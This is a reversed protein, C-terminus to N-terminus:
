VNFRSLVGSMLQELSGHLDGTDAMEEETRRNQDSLRRFLRDVARYVWYDLLITVVIFTLTIALGLWPDFAALMVAVLLCAALLKAGLALRARSLV